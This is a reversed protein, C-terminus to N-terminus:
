DIQDLLLNALEEGLHTEMLYRYRDTNLYGGEDYFFRDMLHHWDSNLPMIVGFQESAEDGASHRQIPAGSNLARWYNYIDVYAFYSNASSTREIIENNSHAFVMETERLYQEVIKELRDQHLTGEFALAKLNSFAQLIEDFGSIEPIDSHTILTAINTMYPPSFALETKREETITVNAVGFVGGSTDRVTEYFSTFQEIPEYHITVGLDYQINVFDIFDRVLEITVGTLRGDEDTYSFGDSPVYMLTVTGGGMQQVDEWTNNLVPDDSSRGCSTLLLSIILISLKKM